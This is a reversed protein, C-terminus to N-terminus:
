ILGKSALEKYNSDTIEVTNSNNMEYSVWQNFLILSSFYPYHRVGHCDDYTANVGLIREYEYYITTMIGNLGILM